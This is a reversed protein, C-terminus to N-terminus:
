IFFCIFLLLLLAFVLFYRVFMKDAASKELYELKRRNAGNYLRVYKDYKEHEIKGITAQERLFDPSVKGRDNGQNVIRTVAKSSKGANSM